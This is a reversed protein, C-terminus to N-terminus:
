NHQLLLLFPVISIKSQSNKFFSFVLYLYINVSTYSRNQVLRAARFEKKSLGPVVIRTEEGTNEIMRITVQIPSKNVFSIYIYYSKSYSFDEVDIFFFKRSILIIDKVVQLLKYSIFIYGVIEIRDRICMESGM